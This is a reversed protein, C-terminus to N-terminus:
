NVASGDKYNSVLWHKILIVATIIIYKEHINYLNHALNHSLTQHTVLSQPITKWKRETTQSFGTDWLLVPLCASQSACMEVCARVCMLVCVWMLVCMCMLVCVCWCVCVDVCACVCMLVCVDVYVCWCVCMLVCSVCVDVCACVCMLVRVCVNVCVRVCMYVGVVGCVCVWVSQYKYFENTCSHQIYKFHISHM